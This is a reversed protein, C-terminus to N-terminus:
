KIKANKSLIYHNFKTQQECYTVFVADYHQEVNINLETM